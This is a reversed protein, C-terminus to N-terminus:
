ETDSVSSALEECAKQFEEETFKLVKKATM